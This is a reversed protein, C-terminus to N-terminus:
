QKADEIHVIEISAQGNLNSTGDESRLQLFDIWGDIRIESSPLLPTFNAHRVTRYYLILNSDFNRVVAIRIYSAYQALSDVSVTPTVLAIPPIHTSKIETSNVPKLNASM